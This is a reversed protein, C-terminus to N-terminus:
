CKKRNHCIHITESPFSPRHVYEASHSSPLLFLSSSFSFSFSSSSSLWLPHKFEELVCTMLLIEEEGECAGLLQHLQFAALCLISHTMGGQSRAAPHTHTHSLLPSPLLLPSLLVNACRWQPQLSRFTIPTLSLSPPPSSVVFCRWGVTVCLAFFGSRSRSRSRSV